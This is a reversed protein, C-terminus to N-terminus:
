RVEGSASAHSTRVPALLEYSEVGLLEAIVALEDVDIVVRGNLRASISQQTLGLHRGLDAQSFHKRAMEARINGSVAETARTFALASM